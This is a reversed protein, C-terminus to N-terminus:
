HPATDLPARRRRPLANCCCPLVIRLLARDSPLPRAKSGYFPLNPGTGIGIELVKAGRLPVGAFLQRKIPAIDEEYSAMGNAMNWAFYRDYGANRSCAACPCLPVASLALLQSGAQKRYCM